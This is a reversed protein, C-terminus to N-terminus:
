AAPRNSTNLAHAIMLLSTSNNQTPLFDTHLFTSVFKILTTGIAIIRDWYDQVQLQETSYTNQVPGPTSVTVLGHIVALPLLYDRLPDGNDRGEVDKQWLHNDAHDLVGRHDRLWSVGLIIDFPSLSASKFRTRCSKGNIGLDCWGVDYIPLPQGGAQMTYSSLSGKAGLSQAIVTSCLPEQQSGSDVLISVEQFVEQATVSEPDAVKRIFGWHQSLSTLAGAPDSTCAALCPRSLCPLEEREQQTHAGGLGGTQRAQAAALRSVDRQLHWDLDVHTHV